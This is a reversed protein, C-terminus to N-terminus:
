TILTFYRVTKGIVLRKQLIQNIVKTLDRREIVHKGDVFNLCSVNSLSDSGYCIDTTNFFDIM